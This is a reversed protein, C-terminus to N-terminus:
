SFLLVGMIIEWTVSINFCAKEKGEWRVLTMIKSGYYFESTCSSNEGQKNPWLCGRKGEWECIYKERHRWKAWSAKTRGPQRHLITTLLLFSKLSIEVVADTRTSNMVGNYAANYYLSFGHRTKNNSLITIISPPPSRLITFLLPAPLLWLKPLRHAVVASMYSTTSYPHKKTNSEFMRGFM